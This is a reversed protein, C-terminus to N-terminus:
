EHCLARCIVAYRKAHLCSGDCAFYGVEVDHNSSLPMSTQLGKNNVTLRWWYPLRSGSDFGAILSAIIVVWSAKVERRLRGCATAM